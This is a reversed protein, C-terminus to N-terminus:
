NSDRPIEKSFIENIFANVEEYTKISWIRSAHKKFLLAERRQGDSLVGGDTRKLEVFHAGNLLVLRDPAYNRGIYKLKRVAGGHEKVRKILYTEIKSERLKM